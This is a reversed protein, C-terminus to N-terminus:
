MRDHGRCPLNWGVILSAEAFAVLKEILLASVTESTLDYVLLRLLVLASFLFDLALNGELPLHLMGVDNSELLVMFIFVVDVNQELEAVVVYQNL